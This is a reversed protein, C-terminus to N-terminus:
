NIIQNELFDWATKNEAVHLVHTVHRLHKVCLHDNELIRGDDARAEVGDHVQVRGGDLHLELADDAHDVLLGALLVQLVARAEDLLVLDGDAAELDEAAVDHADLGELRERLEAAESEAVLVLRDADALDELDDFLFFYGLFKQELFFYCFLKSFVCVCVCVCVCLSGKKQRPFM